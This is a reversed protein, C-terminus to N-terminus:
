KFLGMNDIIGLSFEEGPQCQYHTTEYKPDSLIKECVDGEIQTIRLGSTSSSGDRTM